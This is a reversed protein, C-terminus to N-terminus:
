EKDFKVNFNKELYQQLRESLPDKRDALDSLFINRKRIEKLNEAATNNEKSM